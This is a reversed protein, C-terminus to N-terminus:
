CWTPRSPSTSRCTSTCCTPACEGRARYEPALADLPVQVVEVLGFRDKTPITHMPERADIGDRENGYYKVFYATVLQQNSGSATVDVHPAEAARGEGEYFGGNAQEFYAAGDGARRPARRHRHAAARDPTTGAREGHHTLHTLHAAVLGIPASGGPRKIFSNATITPMPECTPASSEARFKTLHMAALGHHTGGASITSV